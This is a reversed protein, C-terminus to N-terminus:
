FRIPFSEGTIGEHDIASLDCVWQFAEDLNELVCDLKSIKFQGVVEVGVRKEAAFSENRGKTQETTDNHRLCECVFWQVIKREEVQKVSVHLARSVGEFLLPTHPAYRGWPVSLYRVM